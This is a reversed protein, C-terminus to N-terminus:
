VSVEKEERENLCRTDLDNITEFFLPLVKSHDTSIDERAYHNLKLVDRARHVM